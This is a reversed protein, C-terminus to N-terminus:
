PEFDIDEVRLKHNIWFWDGSKHNDKKSSYLHHKLLCKNTEMDLFNYGYETIQIFKYVTIAEISWFVKYDEGLKLKRPTRKPLRKSNITYAM